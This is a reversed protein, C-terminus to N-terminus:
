PAQQNPILLPGGDTERHTCQGDAAVLATSKTQGSRVAVFLLLESHEVKNM